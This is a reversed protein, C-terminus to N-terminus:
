GIVSESLDSNLLLCYPGTHHIFYTPPHAMVVFSMGFAARFSTYSTYLFGLIGLIVGQPDISIKDYDM